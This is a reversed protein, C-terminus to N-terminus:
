AVRCASGAPDLTKSRLVSSAWCPSLRKAGSFQCQAPRGGEPKSRTASTASPHRTTGGTRGWCALARRPGRIKVCSPLCLGGPGLNQEAFRKAGVLPSLRKAGSFRCQAPRGGEPKSRTALTASPRRTIGGTRGWRALAQRPGRIKVCGPLCLGGPGLNQEAFCKVGLLAFLAKRWLVPM